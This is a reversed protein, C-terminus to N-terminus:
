WSPVPLRLYPLLSPPFFVYTLLNQTVYFITALFFPFCNLAVVRSPPRVLLCAAVSGAHRAVLAPSTFVAVNGTVAVLVLTVHGLSLSRRLAVVRPEAETEIEPSM